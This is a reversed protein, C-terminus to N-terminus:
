RNSKPILPQMSLPGIQSDPIEPGEKFRIARIVALWAQLVATSLVELTQRAMRRSRSISATSHQPARGGDRSPKRRSKREVAMCSGAHWTPSRSAQSPIPHLSLIAVHLHDRSRVHSGGPFPFHSIPISISDILRHEAPVTDLPALAWPGHHM